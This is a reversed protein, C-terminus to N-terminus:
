DTARGIRTETRQRDHFAGKADGPDVEIVHVHAIQQTLHALVRVSLDDPDGVGM